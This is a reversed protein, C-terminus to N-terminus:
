PQEPATVEAPVVAMVLAMPLEIEEPTLDEGTARDSFSFQESSPHQLILWEEGEGERRIGGFEGIAEYQMVVHLGYPDSDNSPGRGGCLVAVRTGVETKRLVSRPKGKFGAYKKLFARGREQEADREAEKAAKREREQIVLPHTANEGGIGPSGDDTETELADDLYAGCYPCFRMGDIPYWSGYPGGLKRECAGCYSETSYWTQVLRLRAPESM